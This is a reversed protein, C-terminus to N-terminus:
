RFVGYARSLLLVCLLALLLVALYDAQHDPPCGTM